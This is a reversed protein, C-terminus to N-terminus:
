YSNYCVQNAVTKMIDSREGPSMGKWRDPVVRHEGFSSKAVLPNESLTDGYIQTISMFTKLLISPGSIYAVKIVCVM